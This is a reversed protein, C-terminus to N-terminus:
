ISFKSCTYLNMSLIMDDTLESYNTYSYGNIISAHDTTLPIEKIGIVLSVMQLSFDRIENIM